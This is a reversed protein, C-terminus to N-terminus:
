SEVNIGPWNQFQRKDLKPPQRRSFGGMDVLKGLGFFSAIAFAIRHWHKLAYSPWYALAKGYTKLAQWNQGGDLYYRAALRHAGGFIQRRDNEVKKAFDPNTKMWDLVQYTELSFQPAMSVNKATPHHRAAAWLGPKHKVEGLNAIRLWLHHDLMCHFVDDLSGAQELARRRMFVAPQCIIRFRM